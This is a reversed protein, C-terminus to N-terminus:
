ATVLDDILRPRSPSTWIADSSVDAVIVTAFQHAM